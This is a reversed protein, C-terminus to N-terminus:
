LPGPETERPLEAFDLARALYWEANLIEVNEITKDLCKEKFLKLKEFFPELQQQEMLYECLKNLFEIFDSLLRLEFREKSNNKLLTKVM